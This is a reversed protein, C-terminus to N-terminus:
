NGYRIHGASTCHLRNTRRLASSLPKKPGIWHASVVPGRPTPSHPYGASRPIWPSETRTVTIGTFAARRGSSPPHYDYM